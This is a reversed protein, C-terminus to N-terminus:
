HFLMGAPVAYEGGGEPQVRVELSNNGGSDFYRIRIQHFGAKLAAQGFAQQEGHDGDNDVIRVKDIWLDSGDDSITSFKYVGSKPIRVYGQFSMCFKEPRPKRSLSIVPTIGTDVPPTTDTEELDFHDPEFSKYHIGPHPHSVRVPNQWDLKTVPMVAVASPELSGNQAVARVEATHFLSFPGTYRNSRTTPESGDLTYYVSTEAVPTKISVLPNAVPSDYTVQFTPAPSFGPVGSLRVVFAYPAEIQGPGIDPMKVVVDPGKNKWSLTQGTALFTARALDPLQIGRIVLNHDRPFSPLIAYLTDPKWTFFIEKVAYGSDPHVTQKLIIPEDHPKPKYDRKGASWQCNVKWTRTGYIAEGNLSLWKGIQLLREEMIPPIKGHSDPGIDLLFNGGRSVLDALELVLGQASNYDWADEGRNYGYSYGMGQSEEFPHGNFDQDPQYEPTYVGGHHFHVGSGWRDYTVISDKVPSDNYLWALFQQSHWSEPPLDWDGDTWLVDPHYNNILEKLQPIAHTTVYKEKDKLYLPDYWEYLSYYLGPHVPTKRLA